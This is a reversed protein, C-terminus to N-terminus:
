ICSLNVHILAELERNLNVLEEMSKAIKELSAQRDQVSALARQREGIRSNMMEQVFVSSAGNGSEIAANIEEETAHPRAIRYQRKILDRNSTKVESQVTWFSRVAINLKSLTSTYHSQRTTLDGRRSAHLIKLGQRALSILTNTEDM